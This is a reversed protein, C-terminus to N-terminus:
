ARNLHLVLCVLHKFKRREEQRFFGMALLALPYAAIMGLKALLNSLWGGVDLYQGALYFAVGTLLLMAVRRHEYPVPHVTRVGIYIVAALLFYGIARNIAAAMTGYHPVAVVNLIVNIAGSGLTYLFLMGTRKQYFFGNVVVYYVGLFLFGLSLFPVLRYAEMYGDPRLFSLLIIVEKACLSVILALVSLVFIYYTAFRAVIQTGGPRSSEAFYFPAWATNIAGAIMSQVMTLQAALNYVGVDVLTTFRALIFRDSLSLAWQGIVHPVLPLSFLLSQRLYPWRFCIRANRLIVIFYPIALIANAALIGLLCGTVGWKFGFVFLMTFGATLTFSVISFSAVVFPKEKVRFLAIPIFSFTGFFAMPIAIFLYPFFRVEPLFVRFLAPGFALILLGFSVNWALWSVATTGVYERLKEEDSRYDYYFRVVAGYLELNALILLIFYLTNAIGLIGFEAKDLQSVYLPILFFAGGKEVIRAATYVISHGFLRKLKEFLGMGGKYQLGNSEM